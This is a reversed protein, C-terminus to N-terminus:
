CRFWVAVVKGTKDVEVEVHQTEHRTRGHGYTQIGM